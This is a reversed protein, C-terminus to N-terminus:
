VNVGFARAFSVALDSAEAKAKNTYQFRPDKRLQKKWEWSALTRQTGNDVYSLAPEIDKVTIQNPDIELMDAMDRIYEVSVDYVSKTPDQKLLEAISSYKAQARENFVAKVTNLDEGNAVRRVLTFLEYDSVSVNNQSAFARLADQVEGLQGDLDTNKPKIQSLVFKQAFEQPNVGGGTTRSTNTGYTTVTPAANQAAILQKYFADKQKKSPATGLFSIMYQSLVSDADERRTLSYAKQPASPKQAATPQMSTNQLIINKYRSDRIVTQVKAGAVIAIDIANNWAISVDQPSANEKGLVLKAIQRYAQQSQADKKLSLSFVLNRATEEDLNDEVNVIWSPISVKGSANQGQNNAQLAQLVELTDDIGNNNLDAM